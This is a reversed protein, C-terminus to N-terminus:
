KAPAALDPLKGAPPPVHWTNLAPDIRGHIGAPHRSVVLVPRPISLAPPFHGLQAQVWTSGMRFRVSGPPNLRGM